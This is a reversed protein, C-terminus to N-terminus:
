HLLATTDVTNKLTQIRELQLHYGRLSRELPAMSGGEHHLPRELEQEYYEQWKLAATDSKELLRREMDALQHMMAAYENLDKQKLEENQFLEQQLLQHSLELTSTPSTPKGLFWGCGMGSLFASLILIIILAYQFARKHKRWFTVEGYSIVPTTSGGCQISSTQQKTETM